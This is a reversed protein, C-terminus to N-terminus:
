VIRAPERACRRRRLLQHQDHGPRGRTGGSFDFCDWFTLTAQSFGSLDIIPSILLSAALLSVPQGYLNSGWCNTGSHAQTQLGNNPTGLTWNVETGMPDPLVTWGPAGTELDDSWPPRPAKLTTLTYFAGQNDDLATNGADDRSVVQYHYLHNPLLGTVSVAHNTVSNASYATRDLPISAGYQVLSDAPKSTTWSVLADGYHTVAGVQSIVPPVTNIQATAIVSRNNSADFYAATITDGNRVALRNTVAPSNTAVLVLYGRFLGPRTTESVTVTARNTSSSTSFSVQASGTGALDSDGVEVVVQDPISYLNHELAISGAGNAGPLLFNLANRLLVTENDPAAGAAPIADLPFSLFVVRGPSDLGIRPYRVGCPKGSVTEFFIPTANTTPTFTDSFDPGYVTSDGLGFDLNFSPYNAYDLVISMAGTVPDGPAGLVSPVGFDEDCDTCPSPPDPNLKFGGVQLVARRFPVNGLQSLIGMSAMFFSGGANLYDQIIAQEQPNITNNTGMYNVIDDTTRWIVAPFPRLDSLQPYGRQAVVWFSFSFGSAALANTYAGDDIVTSGSDAEGAADYDDVLLVAPTQVGVFTFWAGANNNTATNGAADASAVFFYYTKGAVLGTLPVAHSTTLTNDTAALNFTHNTSYYVASNAPDSSQWTITVIGLDVSVAVGSLSPPVLEAM